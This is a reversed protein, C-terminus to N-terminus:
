YSDDGLDEDDLNPVRGPNDANQQNVQAAALATLRAQEQQTAMRELDRQADM